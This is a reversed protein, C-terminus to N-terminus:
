VYTCSVPSRDDVMSHQLSMPLPIDQVSIGNAIKKARTVPSPNEVTPRDSLGVPTVGNGGLRAPSAIWRKLSIQSSVALSLM